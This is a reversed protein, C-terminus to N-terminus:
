SHTLIACAYSKVQSLVTVFFCWSLTSDEVKNKDPFM